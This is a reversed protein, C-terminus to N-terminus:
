HCKTKNLKTWDQVTQRNQPNRNFEWCIGRYRTKKFVVFHSYRLWKVEFWSFLSVKNEEVKFTQSLLTGKTKQNTAWPSLYPWKRRKMVVKRFALVRVVFFWLQSFIQGSQASHNNMNTHPDGLYSSDTSIDWVGNM